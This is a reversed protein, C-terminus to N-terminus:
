VPQRDAAAPEARTMENPKCGPVAQTACGCEVVSRNRWSRHSFWPDLWGHDNGGRADWPGHTLGQEPEDSGDFASPRLQAMDLGLLLSAVSVPQPSASSIYSSRTTQGSHMTTWMLVDHARPQNPRPRSRPHPAKLVNPPRVRSAAAQAIPFGRSTERHALPSSPLSGHQQTEVFVCCVGHLCPIQQLM